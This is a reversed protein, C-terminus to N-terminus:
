LAGKTSPVGSVRPDNETAARLARAVAKFE